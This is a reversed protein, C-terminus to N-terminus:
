GKDFLPSLPSSAKGFKSSYSIETMLSLILVLHWVLYYLLIKIESAQCNLWQKWKGQQLLNVPWIPVELLLLVENILTWVSIM